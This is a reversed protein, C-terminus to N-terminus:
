LHFINTDTEAREKNIRNGKMVARKTDMEFAAAILSYNHTRRNHIWWVLAQLGKTQVKGLDARTAVARSALRKAMDLVDTEGDMVGFYDLSNFRKNNILCRHNILESIGCVRLVNHLEQM